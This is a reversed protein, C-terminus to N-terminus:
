NLSLDKYLHLADTFGIEKLNAARSLRGVEVFGCRKFLIISAPNTVFVHGNITEYGLRRGMRVAREMMLDGLGKLRYDM